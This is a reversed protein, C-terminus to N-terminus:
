PLAPRRWPTHRARHTPQQLEGGMGGPGVPRPGGPPGQPMFGPMAPRAGGPMPGASGPGGPGLPGGMGGPAGPPGGMGGPAGPPRMGPVAPAGPAAGPMGGPMQQPMASPQQQQQMPQMGPQQQHMASPPGGNAQPAGMPRPGGPMGASPLVLMVDCVATLMHRRKNCLRRQYGAFTMHCGLRCCWCTHVDHSHPTSRVATVRVQLHRGCAVQCLVLCPHEAQHLSQQQAVRSAEQVCHLCVSMCAPLCAPLLLNWPACVVVCQCLSALAQADRLTGAANLCVGSSLTFVGQRGCSSGQQKLAASVQSRVAQHHDWPCPDLHQGLAAQLGLGM